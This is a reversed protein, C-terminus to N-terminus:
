INQKLFVNIIWYSKLIKMSATGRTTKIADEDECIEGAAEYGFMLNPDIYKGDETIEFHMVDKGALSLTTEKVVLYNEKTDKFLTGYNYYKTIYEKNNYRNEENLNHNIEIYDNNVTTITGPQSSRIKTGETIKVDIGNNFIAEYIPVKEEVETEHPISVTGEPTDYNSYVTKKVKTVEYEGTEKLYWGFTRVVQANEEATIEGTSYVFDETINHLTTHIATGGVLAIILILILSCGLLILGGYLKVKKLLLKAPNLKKLPNKEDIKKKLKNLPNKENIKEKLSQKKDKKGDDKISKEKKDDDKKTGEEDKNKDLPNNSNDSGPLQNPAGTSNPNQNKPEPIEPEKKTDDLDKNSSQLGHNKIDKFDKIGQRVGGYMGQGFQTAANGAKNLGQSVEEENLYSEQDEM